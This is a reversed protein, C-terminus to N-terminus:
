ESWHDRHGPASFPAVVTELRVDQEVVFERVALLLEGVLGRVRPTKIETVYVNRWKYHNQIQM